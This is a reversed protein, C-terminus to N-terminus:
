ICNQYLQTYIEKSREFLKEDFCFEISVSQSHTFFREETNWNGDYNISSLLNSMTEKEEIILKELAVIIFDAFNRLIYDHCYIWYELWYNPNEMEFKSKFESVLSLPKTSKGFEYHGIDDMYEKIFTDQSQIENFRVNQRYLSLSHELPDRLPVVFSADPFIAKIAHHRSLNANNKSVYRCLDKNDVGSRRCDVNAIKAIFNQFRKRNKISMDDESIQGVSGQYSSPFHLLWFVEEFAEPTDLGIKHGDAHARDVFDNKRPALFSLLSRMYILNLLPMDRYKFTGFNPLSHLANLLATSGSRAIGTIFVPKATNKYRPPCLIDDVVATLRLFTRTFALRHFIKYSPSYQGIKSAQTGDPFTLRFIVLMAIFTVALFEISIMYSFAEELIWIGSFSLLVPAVLLACFIIVIHMCFYISEKIINLSYRRLEIEKQIDTVERDFLLKLSEFILELIKDM